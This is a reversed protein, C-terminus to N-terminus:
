LQGTALWTQFANIPRRLHRKLIHRRPTHQNSTADAILAHRRIEAMEAPSSHNM